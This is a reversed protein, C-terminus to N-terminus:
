KTSKDKVIKYLLIILILLPLLWTFIPVTANIWKDIYYGALVGIAMSVMLQTALGAYRLLLKRGDDKEKM